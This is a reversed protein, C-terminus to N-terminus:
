AAPKEFRYVLQEGREEVLKQAFLWNVVEAPDLTRKLHCLQKICNFLGDPNSPPDRNNVLWQKM